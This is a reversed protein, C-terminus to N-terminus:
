THIEGDAVIKSLVSLWVLPVGCCWCFLPAVSTGGPCWVLSVANVCVKNMCGTLSSSCLCQVKSTFSLKSKNHFDGNFPSELGRSYPGNVVTVSSSLFSYPRYPHRQHSKKKKKVWLYGESLTVMSFSSCNSNM